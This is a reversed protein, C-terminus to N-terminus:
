EGNESTSIWAVQDYIGLENWRKHSECRQVVHVMEHAIATREWRWDPSFDEGYTAIQVELSPCYTVGDVWLERTGFAEYHTWGDVERYVIVAGRLRECAEQPDTLRPDKTRVMRKLFLDEVEQLWAFGRAEQDMLTMGCRTRLNTDPPMPACAVFALTATLLALRM